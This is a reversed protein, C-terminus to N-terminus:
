IRDRPVILLYDNNFLEDRRDRIGQSKHALKDYAERIANDRMYQMDMAEKKTLYREIIKGNKNYKLM